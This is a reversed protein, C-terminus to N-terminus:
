EPVEGEQESSEWVQFLKKVGTTGAAKILESTVGSPGSAKGVKMGKLGQEVM